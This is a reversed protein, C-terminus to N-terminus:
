ALDDFISVCYGIVNDHLQESLPEEHWVALSIAPDDLSCRSGHVLNAHELVKILLWIEENREVHAIVQDVFLQLLPPEVWDGILIM